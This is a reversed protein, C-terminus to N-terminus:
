RKEAQIHRFQCDAFLAAQLVLCDMDSRKAAQFFFEQIDDFRAVVLVVSGM